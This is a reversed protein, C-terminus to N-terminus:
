KQVSSLQSDNNCFLVYYRLERARLARLPAGYTVFNSFIEYHRLTRGGVRVCVEHLGLDFTVVSRACSSKSETIYAMWILVILNVATLFLCGSVIIM